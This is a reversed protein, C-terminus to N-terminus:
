RGFGNMHEPNTALDKPGPKMCGIVGHREFAELANESQPEAAANGNATLQQEALLQLAHRLAAQEDAFRGSAVARRLIDEYESPVDLTM